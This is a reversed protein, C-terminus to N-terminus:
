GSRKALDDLIPLVQDATSPPPMMFICRDVGARRYRDITAEDWGPEIMSVEARPRGAAETLRNLEAIADELPLRARSGTPMWGDGYEAVRRLTHIGEGGIIIPPHPRQVPKPWQWIPDFDVFRGHYEAEDNAWIEKMALTRERMVKWRDAPDIGHNAIEELCWGGGIGFIFRGGSLRDLSAVEKALLIPDRSPVLTISTGLRIRSTSAAVASLAVFPDLSRPYSIPLKPGGPWPAKRNVPIHSHEGFWVSEFGREEIARGFDMVSMALDTPLMGIGIHMIEDGEAPSKDFAETLILADV